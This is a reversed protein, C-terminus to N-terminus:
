YTTCNITGFNNVCRTRVPLQPPPPLNSLRSQEISQGFAGMASSIRGVRENFQVENQFGDIALLRCEELTMTFKNMNIRRAIETADSKLVGTYGHYRDYGLRQCLDYDDMKANNRWATCGSLLTITLVAAM